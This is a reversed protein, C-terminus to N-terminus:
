IKERSLLLHEVLQKNREPSKSDIHLAVRAKNGQALRAEYQIWKRRGSAFHRGSNAKTNRDVTFQQNEVLASVIPHFFENYRDANTM